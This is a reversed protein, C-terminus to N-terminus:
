CLVFYYMHFKAEAHAKLESAVELAVRHVGDHSEWDFGHLRSGMIESGFEM